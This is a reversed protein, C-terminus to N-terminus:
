LLDVIKARAWNTQLDLDAGARRVWTREFVELLNLMAM